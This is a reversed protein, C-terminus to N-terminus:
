DLEGCEKDDFSWEKKGELLDISIGVEVDTQIWRDLTEFRYVL